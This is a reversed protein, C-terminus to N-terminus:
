VVVSSVAPAVRVATIGRPNLTGFAAHRLDYRAGWYVFMTFGIVAFKDVALFGGDFLMCSILYARVINDRVSLLAALIVFGFVGFEFFLNFLGNMLFEHPSIGLPLTYPAMADELRSFPLGVPHDALFGPLAQMPGFIRVFISYDGQVAAGAFVRSLVGVDSGYALLGAGGVIFFPWLFARGRGSTKRMVALAGVAGSFLVFSASQSLLGCAMIMAILLPYGFKRRSTPLALLLASLMIFGLYSPESFSAAPRIHSYRLSLLSPITKVDQAFFTAPIGIYRGGQLAIFQLMTYALLVAVVVTLARMVVRENLPIPQLFSGRVIALMLAFFVGQRAIRLLDQSFDQGGEVLLPVFMFPIVLFWLPASSSGPYAVRHARMLLLLALIVAISVWYSFGLQVFPLLALFLLDQVTGITKHSETRARHAGSLINTLQKM